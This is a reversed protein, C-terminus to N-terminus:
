GDRSEGSVECLWDIATQEDIQVKFLGVGHAAAYMEDPALGGREALQELTQDHNYEAQARFKEVFTWPVTRPMTKRESPRCHQQNLVPFRKADSM